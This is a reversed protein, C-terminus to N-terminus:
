TLSARSEPRIARPHRPFLTGGKTVLLIPTARDRSETVPVGAHQHQAVVTEHDGAIRDLLGPAQVGLDLPAQRDRRAGRGRGIEGPQIDFGGPVAPPKGPVGQHM